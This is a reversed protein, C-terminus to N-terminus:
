HWILHRIQRKCVGFFQVPCSPQPRASCKDQFWKLCIVAVSAPKRRRWWRRMSVLLMIAASVLKPASKQLLTNPSPRRRWANLDALPRRKAMRTAVSSNTAFCTGRAQQRISWLLNMRCTCCWTENSRREPTNCSLLNLNFLLTTVSLDMFGWIVTRMVPSTRWYTVFLRCSVRGGRECRKPKM